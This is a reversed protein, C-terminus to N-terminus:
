YWDKSIDNFTKILEERNTDKFMNYIQPIEDVPNTALPVYTTGKKWFNGKESKRKCELEAMHWWDNFERNMTNIIKNYVDHEGLIKAIAACIKLKGWRNSVQTSPIIPIAMCKLNNLLM